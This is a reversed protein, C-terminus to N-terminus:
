RGGNGANDRREQREQRAARRIERRVEHAARETEAKAEELAKSAPDEHAFIALSQHARERQDPDGFLYVALRGLTALSAMTVILFGVFMFGKIVYRWPIGTMSESGEGQEYSLVVMHESYNLMLALFPLGMLLLGLFELWAQGTRSLKERFIDVRVHTNMLYGIGFTLLLLAGHFHWELDQLITSVSFGYDIAFDSFYLRIVDVKRTVVDFVIVFILPLVVWAALSGVRRAIRDLVAAARLVLDM